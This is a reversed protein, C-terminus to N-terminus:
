GSAPRDCTQKQSSQGDAKRGAGRRAGGITDLGLEGSQTLLVGRQFLFERRQARIDLSQGPYLGRRSWGLRCGGYSLLAIQNLRLGHFPGPIRRGPHLDGGDEVRIALREFRFVHLTHTFFDVATLQRQLIETVVTDPEVSGIVELDLQVRAGDIDPIAGGVSEHTLRHAKPQAPGILLPADAEIQPHRELPLAVAPSHGM